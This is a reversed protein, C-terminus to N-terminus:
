LGAVRWLWLRMDAVVSLIDSCRIRRWLGPANSLAQRTAPGILIRRNRAKGAKTLPSGCLRFERLVQSFIVFHRTAAPNKAQGLRSPPPLVRLPTASAKCRGAPQRRCATERREATGGSCRRGLGFSVCGQPRSRSLGESPTTRETCDAQSTGKRAAQCVAKRARASGRRIRECTRFLELTCSNRQASKRVRNKKQQRLGGVRAAEGLTM